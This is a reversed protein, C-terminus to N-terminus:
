VRFYRRGELRFRGDLIRAIAEPYLRHEEVLIRSTLTEPTDDDLVPVVAQLVIPGADLAETVIHVTAGSLKVGYDCAQKQPELGPFSPLLSPHINLIASPFARLMKPGVIKMFGALCVLEVDYKLLENTLVHDYSEKNKYDRHDLVKTLIGASRARELGAANACNSIVISIEADLCGAQIANIIAQLNSGRGSILVGLRADMEAGTVFKTVDTL